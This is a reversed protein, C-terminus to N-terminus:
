QQSVEIEDKEADKLEIQKLWYECDQIAGGLANGQAQVKDFEARLASLREKVSEKDM